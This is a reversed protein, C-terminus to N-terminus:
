VHWHKCHPCKYAKIDEPRTGTRSIVAKREQEAAHRTRYPTKGDCTGRKAHRPSKRRKHKAAM